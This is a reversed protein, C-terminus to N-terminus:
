ERRPIAFRLLRGRFTRSLVGEIEEPCSFLPPGPEKARGGKENSERGGKNAPPAAALRAARGEEPARLGWCSVTWTTWM